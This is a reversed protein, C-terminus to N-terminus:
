SASREEERNLTYINASGKKTVRLRGSQQLTEIHAKFQRANMRSTVRRLLNSHDTAGGLRRLIELVYDADQSIISRHISQVMSPMRREVYAILKAASEFCELCILNDEHSSLHIIMAVRLIHSPLREVVEALKDDLNALRKREVYWQKYSEMAKTELEVKGERDRVRRVADLLGKRQLESGAEPIPFCRSTNSEIVVLFRNLFGGSLVEEPTSSNLLSMTSGGLISLTPAAIMQLGRTLTRVEYESPCDLLRLLMTTLGENYRQRGLFVSLEPACFYQHSSEALSTQLAEPTTKDTMVPCSATEEIMGKAIDIATSKKVKGTPGILLVGSCGFIKFFGMDFWCRRGIVCGLLSLAAFAHFSMPAEIKATYEVYSRIFGDRPLAAVMEAEGGEAARVGSGVQPAGIDGALTAFVEAQTVNFAGCLANLLRDKLAVDVSEPWRDMWELAKAYIPSEKGEFRRGELARLIIQVQQELM